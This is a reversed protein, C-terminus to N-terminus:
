VVVHELYRAEVSAGFRDMQGGTDNFYYEREVSWGAAELVRALADGLAANRAHGIHLPGTPNASVFEVQARLGNPDARGYAEGRAAVDRLAGTLWDATLRFNIFGPGAVQASRVFPAEPLHRVILEAVDRPSRGVRTALVLAVNTAFDGHEKQRPKSLEVEPLDGTLGLERAVAAQAETVLAILREEIM